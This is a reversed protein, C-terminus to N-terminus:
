PRQSQSKTRERKRSTRKLAEAGSPIPEFLVSFPVGFANALKVISRISPNRSAREIGALYTRNITAHVSLEEQSWDKVARYYKIRASLTQLVSSESLL